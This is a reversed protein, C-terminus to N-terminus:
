GLVLEDARCNLEDTLDNLVKLVVLHRVLELNHVM